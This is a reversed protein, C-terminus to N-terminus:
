HVESDRVSFVYHPMEKGEYHKIFRGRITMGNRIAVNISPINTSRIVSFVEGLKQSGFAWDRVARAAEIAYGNHWYTRNFLYGIEPVLTKGDESAACYQLGCIGILKNEDKLVVAFRGFAGQEYFGLQKQLNLLNEEHSWAREWASMTIEDGTIEYTAAEDDLTLKRLFLRETEIIPTNMEAGEM